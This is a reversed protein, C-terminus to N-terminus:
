SKARRRPLTIGIEVVPLQAPGSGSGGAGGDWPVGDSDDLATTVIRCLEAVLQQLRYSGVAVVFLQRKAIAVAAERDDLPVTVVEGAFLRPALDESKLRSLVLTVMPRAIEDSLSGATAIANGNRDVLAVGELGEAIARALLRDFM